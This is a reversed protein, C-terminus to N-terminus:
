RGADDRASAGAPAVAVSEGSIVVVWPARSNGPVVTEPMAEGVSPCLKSEPPTVAVCASGVPAPANEISRPALVFLMAASRERAGRVGTSSVPADVFLSSANDSGGEMPGM